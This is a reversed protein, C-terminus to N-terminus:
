CKGRKFVANLINQLEFADIEGDEGALNIFSERAAEEHDDDTDREGGNVVDEQVDFIDIM